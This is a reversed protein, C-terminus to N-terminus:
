PQSMHLNRLYIQKQAFGRSPEDDTSVEQEPRSETTVSVNLMIGSPGVDFQLDGLRAPYNTTDNPSASAFDTAVLMDRGDRYIHVTDRNFKVFRLKSGSASIVNQLGRVEQEIIELDTNAFNQLQYTLRNEVTSDLILSNTTLIMATLMAVIIPPLVIDITINM